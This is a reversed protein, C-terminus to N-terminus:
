CRFPGPNQFCRVVQYAICVLVTNMVIPLIVTYTLAFYLVWEPLPVIQVLYISPLGLTVILGDFEGHGGGFGRSCFLAGDRGLGALVPVVVLPTRRFQVSLRSMESNIHSSLKM